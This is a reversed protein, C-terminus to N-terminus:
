ALKGQAILRRTYWVLLAALLPTAVLYMLREFTTFQVSGMMGFVPIMSVLVGLLSLTLYLLAIKKKMLLLVCGFTGAFVAVAFGLTVWAPRDAILAQQAESLAALAEPSMTLQWLFNLIGMANWVLGVIAILWFHWSVGATQNM